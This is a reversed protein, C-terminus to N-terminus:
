KGSKLEMFLKGWAEPSGRLRAIEHEPDIRYEQRLHKLSDAQYEAPSVRIRLAKEAKLYNVLRPSPPTEACAAISILACVAIFGTLSSLRSVPIRSPPILGGDAKNSFLRQM